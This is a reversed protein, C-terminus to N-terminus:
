ARYAVVYAEHPEAEGEVVAVLLPASAPGM